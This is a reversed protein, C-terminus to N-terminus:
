SAVAYVEFAGGLGVRDVLRAFPAAAVALGAAVTRAPLSTGLAFRQFGRALAARDLGSFSTWRVPEFGTAALLAYLGRRSFLALHEPPIVMPFRRGLLRAPLGSSSPTSLALFGGPRLWTRARQLMDKPDPLHELVEWMALADFRPAPPGLDSFWVDHVVHGRQRPWEATRARDVGEVQMGLERCADLFYGAGCGVELVTRVGFRRLIAARADAEARMRPAETEARSHYDPALYTAEIVSAPPLPTVFVTGCRRCRAHDFGGVRFALDAHAGDCAPCPRAATM